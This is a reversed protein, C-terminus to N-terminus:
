SVREPLLLVAQTGVGPSDFRLSGGHLRAIREVTVLGLGEHGPKTTGRLRILVKPNTSKLGAGYDRVVLAVLGTGDREARIEPRQTGRGAERTADLANEVLHAVARRLLAPDGTVTPWTAGVVAVDQAGADELAARIVTDLDVPRTEHSDLAVVTMAAGLMDALRELEHQITRASAEAMPDGAVGRKVVEAHMAIANLPGRLDHLLRDLDEPLRSM